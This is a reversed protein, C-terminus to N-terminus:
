ASTTVTAWTTSGTTNVYMRTTTSNGDARLYLSNAPAAFTPAGTGSYIGVPLTGAGLKIPLKTQIGGAQKLAPVYNELYTPSSM